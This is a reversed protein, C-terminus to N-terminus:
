KKDTPPTDEVAFKRAVWSLGLEAAAVAATILGTTLASVHDASAGQTTLWTTLSAGGITAWKMAQRTFWGRQTQVVFKLLTKLTSNM